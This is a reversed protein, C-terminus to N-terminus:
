RGTPLPWCRPAACVHTPWHKAPLATIAIPAEHAFQHGASQNQCTVHPTAKCHSTGYHALNQRNSAAPQSEMMHMNESVVSGTVPVTGYIPLLKSADPTITPTWMHAHQVALASTVAYGAWICQPMRQPAAVWSADGMACTFRAPRSADGSSVRAVAMKVRVSLVKTTPSSM